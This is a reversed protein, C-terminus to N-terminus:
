KTRQLVDKLLEKFAGNGWLRILSTPIVNVSSTNLINEMPCSFATILFLALLTAIDDNLYIRSIQGAIALEKILSVTGALKNRWFDHYCRLAYKLKLVKEEDDIPVIYFKNLLDIADRELLSVDWNKYEPMNLIERLYREENLFFTRHCIHLCAKHDFGFNSDGGSCTFMSPKTPLSPFFNMLRCFRWTYSSARYKHLERLFQGFLKGDDSTYRGPVELTYSFSPRFILNKNKISSAIRSELDEAFNIVDKMLDHELIYQMNAPTLTPKLKIEITNALDKKNLWDIFAFINDIVQDLIGPMRNMGNIYEPGDISFQVNLNYSRDIATKAIRKLNDLNMGNTSFSITQLRPLHRAAEEICQVALEYPLTPEAGWLGLYEISDKPLKELLNPLVRLSEQLSRMSKTKPIYCYKCHLNCIASIFIEISKM